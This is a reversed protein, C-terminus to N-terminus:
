HSKTYECFQADMVAIWKLVNENDWFSVVFGKAKVQEWVGVPLWEDVEQGWLTGQEPCKM